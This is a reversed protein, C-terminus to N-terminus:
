EGSDRGTLRLLVGRLAPERLRTEVVRAGLAEVRPVLAAAAAPNTARGVFRRPDATAFLGLAAIGRAADEGAPAAVTLVLERDGGFVGQVLARAPGYARVAGDALIAVEDALEEAEEVDHTSFVVSGADERLQRIVAHVHRRAAPDVGATPEDLLALRPAHAIGAALSARKRQGGSLVAARRNAESELGLRQVARAAAAPAARRAVGGLVAFVEVNERVTLAGFLAPEQPVFGITRRAEAASRPDGSATTVSGRDLRLRGAAARLLTSKGAGNPGVLAVVRAAPVDLSLGALGRGGFDRWADRLSLATTSAARPEIM